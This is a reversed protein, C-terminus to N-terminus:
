IKEDVSRLPASDLINKHRRGEERLHELTDEVTSLRDFVIATHLVCVGVVAGLYDCVIRELKKCENPKYGELPNEIEIPDIQGKVIPYDQM